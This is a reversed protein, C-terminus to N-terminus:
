LRSSNCNTMYRTVVRGNRCISKEVGYSVLYGSILVRCLPFIINNMPDYRPTNHIEDLGPKLRSARLGPTLLTTYIEIESSDIQKERKANRPTMRVRVTDYAAAPNRQNLAASLQETINIVGGACILSVATQAAIPSAIAFPALDRERCTATSPPPLSPPPPPPINPDMTIKASALFWQLITRLRHRAPSERFLKTPVGRTAGKM